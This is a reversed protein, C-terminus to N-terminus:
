RQKEKFFDGERDVDGCIDNFMHSRLGEELSYPTMRRMSPNKQCTVVITPLGLLNSNAVALWSPDIRATRTTSPLLPDSLADTSRNYDVPGTEIATEPVKSWPETPRM